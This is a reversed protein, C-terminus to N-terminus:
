RPTLVPILIPYFQKVIILGEFDRDPSLSSSLTSALFWINFLMSDLFMAKRGLALEQIGSYHQSIRLIEHSFLFPYCYHSSYSLIIQSSIHGSFVNICKVPRLCLLVFKFYYCVVRFLNALKIEWRDFWFTIHSLQILVELFM